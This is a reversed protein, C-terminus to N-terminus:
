EILLDWYKNIVARNLISHIIDSDLVIEQIITDSPYYSIETEMKCRCSSTDQLAITLIRYIYNETFVKINSWERLVLEIQINSNPHINVKKGKIIIFDSKICFSAIYLKYDDGERLNIVANVKNM